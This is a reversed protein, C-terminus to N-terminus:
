SCFFSVTVSTTTRKWVVEDDGERKEEYNLKRKASKVGKLLDTAHRKREKTKLLKNSSSFRGSSDRTEVNGPPTNTVSNEEEGTCEALTAGFVFKYFIGALGLCVSPMVIGGRDDQKRKESRFDPSLSSIFGKSVCKPMLKKCNWLKLSSPLTIKKWKVLSRGLVYRFFMATAMKSIKKELPNTPKLVVARSILAWDAHAM